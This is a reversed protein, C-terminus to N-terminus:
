PALMKAVLYVGLAVGAGIAVTQVTTLRGAPAMERRTESRRPSSTYFGRVVTQPRSEFEEPMTRRSESAYGDPGGVVTSAIARRRPSSRKSRRAM